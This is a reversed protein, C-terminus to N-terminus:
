CRIIFANQPTSREARRLAVDDTQRGMCFLADYTKEKAWASRSVSIVALHYCSNIIFCFLM